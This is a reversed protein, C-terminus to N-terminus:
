RPRVIAVFVDNRPSSEEIGPPPLFEIRKRYWRPKFRPSDQLKEMWGARMRTPLIFVWLNPSQLAADVFPDINSYPPNCFVRVREGRILKLDKEVDGSFRACKTNTADAAADFDLAFEADLAKFLWDPTRWEDRLDRENSTGTEDNSM